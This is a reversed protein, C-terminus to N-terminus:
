AKPPKLALQVEGARLLLPADPSWGEVELYGPAQARVRPGGRSRGPSAGAAAAGEVGPGGGTGGGGTGGGGTGGARGGAADLGGASAGVRRRAGRGPATGGHAAGLALSVPQSAYLALVGDPFRVAEVVLRHKGRGAGATGVPQGEEPDRLMASGEAALRLLPPAATDARRAAGPESPRAELRGSLGGSLWGVLWRLEQRGADTRVQERAVEAARFGDLEGRLLRLLTGESTPKRPAAAAAPALGLAGPRGGLGEPLPAEPVPPGSRGRRVL